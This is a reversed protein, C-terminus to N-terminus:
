TSPTLVGKISGCGPSLLSHFTEIVTDFSCYTIWSTVDAKKSAIMRLAETLEEINAAYTGLVQKEPLIIDYSMLSAANEHLGILVVAGGPRVMALAKQHTVSRGVADIIVDIGNNSTHHLIAAEDISNIDSYVATAGLQRATELRAENIDCVIVNANAMRNFVQLALLGIPGAGIIMVHRPGLHRTLNFMHIGNALPEALCAQAGSVGAPVPLLCHQPVAIFEGFAGPRDMGFVERNVCLHTQGRRCLNCSGCSVVSNSVVREGKSFRLAQEGTKVVVGSFEHGMIIPPKRRSSEKRFTELESGCIGCAEVKVLVEQSTISPVPVDRVELQGYNVYLMAKM